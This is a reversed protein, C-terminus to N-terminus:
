QEMLWEAVRRIEDEVHDSHVLVHWKAWLRSWSKGSIDGRLRDGRDCACRAVCSVIPEVEGGSAVRDIVSPAVVSVMGTDQCLQCQHGAGPGVPAKMLRDAVDRLSRLPEDM